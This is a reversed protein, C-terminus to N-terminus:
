FSPRVSAKPGPEEQPPGPDAATPACAALWLGESSCVPCPSGPPAAESPYWLATTQPGQRVCCVQRPRPPRDSGPSSPCFSAFGPLPVSLCRFTSPAASGHAGRSTLQTSLPVRLQVPCPEHASLLRPCPSPCVSPRAPLMTFSPSAGRTSSPFGGSVRCTCSPGGATGRSSSPRAWSPLGAWLGLSPASCSRSSCPGSSPCSPLRGAGASATPSRCPSLPLVALLTPGPSPAGFELLVFDDPGASLPPRSSGPFGRPRGTSRSRALGFHWGGPQRDLILPAQCLASM